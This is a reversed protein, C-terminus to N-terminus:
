GTNFRFLCCQLTTPRHVHTSIINLVNYKSELFLAALRCTVNCSPVLGDILIIKVLSQTVIITYHLNVTQQSVSISSTILCLKLILGKFGLTVM